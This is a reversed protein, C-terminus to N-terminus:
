FVRCLWPVVLMALMVTTRWDMAMTAAGKAANKARQEELYSQELNKWLPYRVPEEGEKNAISFEYSKMFESLDGYAKVGFLVYDARAQFHTGNEGPTWQFEGTDPTEFRAYTHNLSCDYASYTISDDRYGFQCRGVYTSLVWDVKDATGNSTWRVTTSQNTLLTTNMIPFILEEPFYERRDMPDCRCFDKSYSTTSMALSIRYLRSWSYLYSTYTSGPHHSFVM